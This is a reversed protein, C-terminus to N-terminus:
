RQADGDAARLAFPAHLRDADRGGDLAGIPLAARKRGIPPPHAVM